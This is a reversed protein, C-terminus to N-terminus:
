ILFHLHPPLFCPIIPINAQDPDVVQKGENGPTISRDKDNACDNLDFYM